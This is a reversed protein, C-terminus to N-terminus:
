GGLDEVVGGGGTDADLVQYGVAGAHERAGALGEAQGADVGVDVGAPAVLGDLRLGQGHVADGSGVVDPPQAGDGVNDHAADVRDGFGAREHGGRAGPALQGGVGAAGGARDPDDPRRLPRKEATNLM